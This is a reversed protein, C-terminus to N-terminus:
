PAVAAVNFGRGFLLAVTDETSYTAEVIASDHGAKVCRRVLIHAKAILSGTWEPVKIVVHAYNLVRREPPKSVGDGSDTTKYGYRHLWRVFERVGPDLSEYDFDATMM